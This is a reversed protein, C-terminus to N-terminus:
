KILGKTHLTTLLAVQSSVCCELIALPMNVDMPTFKNMLDEVTNGGTNNIFSRYSEMWKPMTWRQKEKSM